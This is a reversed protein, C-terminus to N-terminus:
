LIGCFALVIAQSLIVKPMNAWSQCRLLLIAICREFVDTFNINGGISRDDSQTYETQQNVIVKILICM